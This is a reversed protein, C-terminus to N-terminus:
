QMVEHTWKYSSYLFPKGGERDTAVVRLQIKTGVDYSRIRKACEVNMSQPFPEGACPRIKRKKTRADFYVEARITLYESPHRRGINVM